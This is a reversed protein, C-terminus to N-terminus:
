KMSKVKGESKDWFKRKKEIKREGCSKPFKRKVNKSSTRIESRPLIKVGTSKLVKELESRNLSKWKRIKGGSSM